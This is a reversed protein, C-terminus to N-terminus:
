RSRNSTVLCLVTTELMYRAVAWWSYFIRSIGSSRARMEVSVEAFSLGARRLLLLVGMDQYDILTAQESALVKCAAANYLRFGSTLDELSFGSIRRFLWWAIRRARSGREPCAGIVVDVHQAARFLRHLEGPRHQGDADMTIVCTFNHRVAYRIGCQMAGWAGQALPARLVTAGADRAVRGTDDDSQDDIVVVDEYGLSLIGAVVDRITSSENRAPIVVLPREHAEPRAADPSLTALVTRRLMREVARIDYELEIRKRGALAFKRRTSVDKGIAIMADRWAAPEDVAVLRGTAGNRIVESVGSGPIASALIPLGHYMAELLVIGFAETRERSPLAFVDATVFLEACQADSLAGALFVRDSVDLSRILDALAARDSGEGVIRLEVDPTQACARILTDFGKYYTLRGVALVKLQSSTWPSLAPTPPCIMRSPDLGLPVVVCKEGFRALPESSELYARSSCVVLAARELLAQEIPRVLPYLARLKWSHSSAIIDSHWHVIWPIGRARRSLLLTFASINPLHLHLYDPKWDIMARDLERVFNPALPAFAVTAAVPVRRLWEPDEGSSPIASDHVLAFSETGARRQARILDELFREMGGVHPAFYKGIHLVRMPRLAVLVCHVVRM